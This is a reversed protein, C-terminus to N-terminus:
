VADAVAQWDASECADQSMDAVVEVFRQRARDAGKSHAFRRRAVPNHPRGLRGQM